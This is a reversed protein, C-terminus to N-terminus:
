MHFYNSYYWKGEKTGFYKSAACLWHIAAAACLRGRKCLWFYSFSWLISLQSCIYLITSPLAYKEFIHLHVLEIDRDRDRHKLKITNLKALVNHEKISSLFGNRRRGICQVAVHVLLLLLLCHHVCNLNNRKFYVHFKPLPLSIPRVDATFRCFVVCYCLLLSVCQNGCKLWLSRIPLSFSCRFGFSLAEAWHFKRGEFALLRTTVM